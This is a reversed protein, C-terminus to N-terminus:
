QHIYQILPQTLGNVGDLSISLAENPNVIYLASHSSTPDSLVLFRGHAGSTSIATEYDVIAQDVVTDGQQNQDL